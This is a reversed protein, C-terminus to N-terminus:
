QREGEEKKEQKWAEEAAKMGSEETAAISPTSAAMMALLQRLEYDYERVLVWGLFEALADVHEGRLATENRAFRSLTALSIGTAVSIDKRSKPNDRLARRLWDSVRPKRGMLRLTTV